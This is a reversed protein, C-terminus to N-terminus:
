WCRNNHSEHCSGSCSVGSACATSGRTITLSQVTTLVDVKGNAHTPATNAPHCTTCANQSHNSHKGTRPPNGHCTTCSTASLVATDADVKGDMHLSANTWTVTPPNGSAFSKIVTSHCTQCATSNPHSGGPPNTHCATGCVNWTENVQNWVPARKVTGGAVAPLLTAGHCYVSNCTLATADFAPKAGAAVSPGGWSFDVKGNSHMASTPVPHCDTCAVQRHWTSTSVALHQAHAGVAADSTKTEGKTGKPPALNGAGDGHCTGACGSAAGGTMELQGNIHLAPNKWTVQPPNGATFSAVVDGHCNACASNAPHEGGPPLTHCATGCASQSGDVKTWLPRRQSSTGTVDAALTAGHCYVGSCTLASSDYTAKGSLAGFKVDDTGNMHTPVAPDFAPQPPVVHCEACAIEGHWASKGLHKQHAGVGRATTASNGSVDVPPAFSNASGHCSACTAVPADAAPGAELSEGADQASAGDRDGRGHSDSQGCGWSLALLAAVAFRPVYSM